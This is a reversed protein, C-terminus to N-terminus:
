DAPSGESLWELRHHWYWGLRNIRLLCRRPVGQRDRLEIEYAYANPWWCRKREASEIEFGKDVAWRALRYEGVSRHTSFTIALYVILLVLPGLLLEM